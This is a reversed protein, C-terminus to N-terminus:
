QPEKRHQPIIDENASTHCFDVTGAMSLIRNPSCHFAHALRTPTLITEPPGSVLPEGPALLHVEAFNGPVLHLDHMSALLTVAEARLSALLDLLEAQRGIDLNQTPEDLILLRPSQALGIAIKVRQKEGGSLENFIRRRLPALDTLAIARDVARRDPELLGRLLGLYPSRGQEVIEQVTFDFPVDLQQPVLAILRARERPTLSVLPKGDLLVEGTSPQLTGAALRLLTTKGAGNPGILATSTGHRLSLRMDALVLRSGYRFAVERLELLPTM